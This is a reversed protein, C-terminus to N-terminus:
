RAAKPMLTFPVTVAPAHLASPEAPPLKALLVTEPVRLLMAAPPVLVM